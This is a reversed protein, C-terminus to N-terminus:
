PYLESGSTDFCVISYRAGVGVINCVCVSGVNSNYHSLYEAHCPIFYHYKSNFGNSNRFKKGNYFALTYLRNGAQITHAVRVVQWNDLDYDNYTGYFSEECYIKQSPFNSVSDLIPGIPMIPVIGEAVPKTHEKASREPIISLKSSPLNTVMHKMLRNFFLYSKTFGSRLFVHLKLEEELVMNEGNKAELEAKHKKKLEDIEDQKKKLEKQKRREAEELAEKSKETERKRDLKEILENIEDEKDKLELRKRREAEDLEERLKEIKNQKRKSEELAEKLEETERKRELKEILENIEDEKDRLEIRKRREAEDLEERLKEIKNQKRKSEEAAEKLEETEKKRELKEILENIEDEKDKLEIRKRRETEDLEERLKEIKNEKRKSEELNKREITELEEKLKDVEDQKKKLEEQKVRAVEEKLKKIKEQRDKLEEEAITLVEKMNDIKEEKEKREEENKRKVKELEEKLKLKVDELAQKHTLKVEELEKKHKLKVNELEKEKDSLKKKDDHKGNGQNSGLIDLPRGDMFNSRAWKTNLSANVQYKSWDFLDFLRYYDVELIVATVGATALFGLGERNVILRSNFLDKILTRLNDGSIDRDGIKLVEHKNGPGISIGLHSWQKGKVPFLYPSDLEYVEIAGTDLCRLFTKDSKMTYAAM